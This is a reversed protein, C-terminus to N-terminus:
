ANTRRMEMHRQAHHAPCLWKVDLPKSYDDHHGHARPAGCVECSQRKLLGIRVLYRVAWSARTKKANKPDRRMERFREAVRAKVEPRQGYEKRWQTRNRLRAAERLKGEPSRQASM